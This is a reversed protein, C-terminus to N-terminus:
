QYRTRATAKGLLKRLLQSCKKKTVEWKKTARMKKEAVVYSVMSPLSFESSWDSFASQPELEYSKSSFHAMNSPLVCSSAMASDLTPYPTIALDGYGSLTSLPIPLDSLVLTKFDHTSQVVHSLNRGDSAIATPNEEEGTDASSCKDMTVCSSPKPFDTVGKRAEPTYLTPPKYLAISRKVSLSIFNFSPM